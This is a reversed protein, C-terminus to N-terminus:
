FGFNHLGVGVLKVVVKPESFRVGCTTRVKPESFRVGCTTRVKPESFRVGCTTRVWARWHRLMLTCM